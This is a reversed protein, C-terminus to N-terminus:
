RPGSGSPMKGSGTCSSTGTGAGLHQSRECDKQAASEATSDATGAKIQECDKPRPMTSSARERSTRDQKMQNSESSAAQAPVISSVALVSLCGALQIMHRLKMADERTPKWDVYSLAGMRSLGDTASPDTQGFEDCPSSLRYTRQMDLSKSPTDTHPCATSPEWSRIERRIRVAVTPEHVTETIFM